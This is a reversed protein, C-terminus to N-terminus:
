HHRYFIGNLFKLSNDPRCPVTEQTSYMNPRLVLRLLKKKLSAYNISAILKLHVVYQNM